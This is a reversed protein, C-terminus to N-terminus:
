NRLLHVKTVKHAGKLKNLGNLIDREIKEIWQGGSNEPFVIDGIFKEGTDFTLVARM